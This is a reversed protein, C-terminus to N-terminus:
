EKDVLDNKYKSFCRDAIQQLSGKIYDHIADIMEHVFDHLVTNILDFIWWTLWATIRSKNDSASPIVSSLSYLSGSYSQGQFVGMANLNRLLGSKESESLSQAPVSKDIKNAAYFKERVEAYVRARKNCYLFWKVFAWVVGALVYGGAIILFWQWNLMFFLRVTNGLLGYGAVGFVFLMFTAWGYKECSTFLLEIVAFGALLVWFFLSGLLIFDPLFFM